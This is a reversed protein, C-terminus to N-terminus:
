EEGKRANYIEKAFHDILFLIGWSFIFAVIYFKISFIDAMITSVANAVEEKKTNDIYPTLKNFITHASLNWLLFILLYAGLYKFTRSPLKLKKFVPYEKAAFRFLWALAGIIATLLLIIIEDM